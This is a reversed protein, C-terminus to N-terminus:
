VNSEQDDNGTTGHTEEWRYLGTKATSRAKLREVGCDFCIGNHCSITGSCDPCQWKKEEKQLFVDVGQDKIFALSELMSM